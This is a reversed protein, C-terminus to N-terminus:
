SSSSRREAPRCRRGARASGGLTGLARLKRLATCLESLAIRDQLAEGALERVDDGLELARVEAALRLADGVALQREGEVLQLSRGGLDLGFGLLDIRRALGGRHPLAARRLGIAGTWSGHCEGGHWTRGVTSTGGFAALRPVSISRMQKGGLL